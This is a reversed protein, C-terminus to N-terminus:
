PSYWQGSSRGYVGHELAHEPVLVPVLDTQNRAEHEQKEKREENVMNLYKDLGLNDM